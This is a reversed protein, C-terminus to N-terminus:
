SSSEDHSPTSVITAWINMQPEEEDDDDSDENSNQRHPPVQIPGDNGPHGDTHPSETPTGTSDVTRASMEEDNKKNRRFHRIRGPM